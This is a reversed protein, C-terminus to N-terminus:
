TRALVHDRPVKFGSAHIHGGGGYQEAVKSVDMWEANEKTSRLSFHRHKTGDYYTGAFPSTKALYNGADSAMMYSLNAIPVSMGDITMWRTSAKLLEHLDKFHKKVVLAGAQIADEREMFGMEMLETWKEFEYEHAFLFESLERTGPLKFHWLDRDQVHFVMSLPPDTHLYEWALVAGSKTTDAYNTFHPHVIDSLGEIASQHHDLLVVHNAVELMQEIVPRKYSFDLLFVDRGTVDPPAEQYKGPFYEMAEGFERWFIWAATFGDACNGHYIVLPKNPSKM